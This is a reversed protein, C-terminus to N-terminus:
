TELIKFLAIRLSLLCKSSSYAQQAPLRLLGIALAVDERISSAKGVELFRRLM